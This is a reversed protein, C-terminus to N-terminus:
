NPSSSSEQASEHNTGHRVDATKEVVRVAGPSPEVGSGRTKAWVQTFEAGLLFIMASYYIWVLVLALSGAAGYTSEMNRSGLYMGIAFKGVVFLGATILAGVAVDSWKVEADPLFKFMAAFLIAIVAFSIALNVFYLVRGVFDPLMVSLTNGAASLLATVALSVLLLFAIGCIMGFSLVRKKIFGLLGGQDPDPRVEWAENLAGQLQGVLGTAGVVLLVLSLARSGLGGESGSANALMTKIQTAGDNGIISVLETEISNQVDAPDWIFGCISIILLLFPALSFTTYYALAAAIRPCNDESFERFTTQLTAWM